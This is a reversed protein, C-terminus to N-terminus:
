PPDLWATPVLMGPLDHALIWLGPLTTPLIAVGNSNAFPGDPDLKMCSAQGGESDKM